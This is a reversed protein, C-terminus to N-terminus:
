NRRYGLGRGAPTCFPHSYRQLSHLPTSCARSTLVTPQQIEMTFPAQFVKPQPSRSYCKCSRARATSLDLSDLHLFSFQLNHSSYILSNLTSILNSYLCSYSPFLSNFSLPITSLYILHKACQCFLTPIFDRM